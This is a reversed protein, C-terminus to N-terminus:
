SWVATAGAHGIWIVLAMVVLGAIAALAGLVLTIRQPTRTAVAVAGHAGTPQEARDARKGLVVTAALLVLFAVAVPWLYAARSAHEAVLPSGGGMSAALDNGSALAPFISLVAVVAVLLVPTGLQRRWAPRVAVAVTGLAALPLLVVVAHVVLPHLPIGGISFM